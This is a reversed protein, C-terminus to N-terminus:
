NHISFVLNNGDTEPKVNINTINMLWISNVVESVKSSTNCVSITFQATEDHNIIINIYTDITLLEYNYIVHCEKRFNFDRNTTDQGDRFIIKNLNFQRWLKKIIQNYSNIDSISTFSEKTLTSHIDVGSATKGIFFNNYINDFDYKVSDKHLLLESLCKRGWDQADDSIILLFSFNLMKLHYIDHCTHSAIARLIERRIYFQRADEESYSYDENINFDSELFYLLMKYIIIISITGHQYQELSKQLKFYYKPQLRAIYPKLQNKPNEEKSMKSSCLRLIFDNMNSQVGNYSLDLMINPNIVFSYMMDKTKNIIEQAQQLPYGLDHSLAIISWISLKELENTKAKEGVEINEIYQGGDLLSHLGVLWVRFMHIVHDRYYKNSGYLLSEFEIFKTFYDSLDDLGYATPKKKKNKLFPERNDFFRLCIISKKIIMAWLDKVVDAFSYIKLDDDEERINIEAMKSIVDQDLPYEFGKVDDIDISRFYKGLNESVIHSSLFKIYSLDKNAM